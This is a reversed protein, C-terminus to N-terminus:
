REVGARHNWREIVCRYARDIDDYSSVTESMLLDCRGCYVGAFLWGPNSEDLFPNGVFRGCFPCARLDPLRAIAAIASPVADAIVGTIRQADEFPIDPGETM